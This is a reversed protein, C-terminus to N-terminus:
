RCFASSSSIKFSIQFDVNKPLSSRNTGGADSGGDGSDGNDEPPVVGGNDITQGDDSGGNDISGKNSLFENLADFLGTNDQQNFGQGQLFNNLGDKNGTFTFGNPMSQVLTVVVCCM